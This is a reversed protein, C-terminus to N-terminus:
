VAVMKKRSRWAYGGLGLIGAGLLVVGSPEPVARVRISATGTAIMSDLERGTGSFFQSGGPLLGTALNTVQGPGAGAVFHFTGILLSSEGAPPKLVDSLVISFTLEATGVTSSTAPDVTTSLFDNAGDVGPQATILTVQAPDPVGVPRNFSVVLGASNLGETALFDTGSETLYVPIDIGQGPDVSYAAQGFGLIFDARAAGSGTVIVLGTLLTLVSGRSSRMTM